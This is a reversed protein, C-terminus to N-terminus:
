CTDFYRCDFPLHTVLPTVFIHLVFLLLRLEVQDHSHVIPDLEVLLVQLHVFIVVSVEGSEGMASSYLVGLAIARLAM